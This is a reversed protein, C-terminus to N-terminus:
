IMMLILTAIAVIVLIVLGLQLPILWNRKTRSRIQRYCLNRTYKEYLSEIFWNLLIISTPLLLSTLSGIIFAIQFPMLFIASFAGYITLLIIGQVLIMWYTFRLIEHDTVIAYFEGVLTYVLLALLSVFLSFEVKMIINIPKLSTLFQGTLFLTLSVSVSFMMDLRSLFTRERNSKELSDLKEMFADFSTEDDSRM